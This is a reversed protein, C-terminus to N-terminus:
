QRHLNHKNQTFPGYNEVTVGRYFTVEQILFDAPLTDIVVTDGNNHTVYPTLDNNLFHRVLFCGMVPPTPRFEIYIRGGSECPIDHLIEIQGDSKIEVDLEDGENDLEIQVGGSYTPCVFTAPHLHCFRYLEAAVEIAKDTIKEGDPEGKLHSRSTASGWGPELEKFSYLTDYFNPVAHIYRIM